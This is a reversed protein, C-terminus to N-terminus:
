IEVLRSEYFDQPPLVPCGEHEVWAHAAFNPKSHAGIVLTSPIARASLLWSVVLSQVLCRSDTPLIRLTRNVANSLRIAVLRAEHSGPELGAPRSPPRARIARVVARIDDRRMRSRMRVYVLLIELVLVVKMRAPLREGPIVHLAPSM